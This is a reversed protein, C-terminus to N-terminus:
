NCRPDALSDTGLNSYLPTGFFLVGNIEAAENHLLTLNPRSAALAKWGTILEATDHGFFEHNGLVYIVQYGMHLLPDILEMAQYGVGIDGALVIVDAIKQKLAPLKKWSKQNGFELHLDSLLLAKM